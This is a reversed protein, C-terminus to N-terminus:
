VLSEEKWRRVLRLLLNFATGIPTPPINDLEIESVQQYLEVLLRTRVEAETEERETREAVTGDFNFLIEIYQGMM